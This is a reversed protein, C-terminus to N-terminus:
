KYWLQLALYLRVAKLLPLYRREVQYGIDIYELLNIYYINLKLRYARCRSQTVQTEISVGGTHSACSCAYVEISKLFRTISKSHSVRLLSLCLGAARRRCQESLCLLQSPLHKNARCILTRPRGHPRVVVSEQEQFLYAVTLM